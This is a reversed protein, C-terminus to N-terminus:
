LDGLNLEETNDLRIRVVKIDEDEEENLFQYYKKMTGEYREKGKYTGYKGNYNKVERLWTRKQSLHCSLARKSRWIKGESTYEPEKGGTSYKGHKNMIKYAYQMKDDEEENFLFAGGAESM